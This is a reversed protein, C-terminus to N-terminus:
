EEEYIAALCKQIKFRSGHDIFREQRVADRKGNVM